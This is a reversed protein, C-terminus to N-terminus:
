VRQTNQGREEHEGTEYRAKLCGSFTDTPTKLEIIRVEQHQHGGQHSQDSQIQETYKFHSEASFGHTSSGVKRRPMSGTASKEITEKSGHQGSRACRREQSGRHPKCEKLFWQGNHYHQQGDANTQSGWVQYQTPIGSPKAEQRLM